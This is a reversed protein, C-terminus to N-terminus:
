EALSSTPPPRTNRRYGRLDPLAARPIGLRDTVAPIVSGDAHLCREYDVVHFRDDGLHHRWLRARSEHDALWSDPGVYHMSDPDNSLEGGLLRIAWAYSELYASAERHVV